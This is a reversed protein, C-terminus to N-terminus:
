SVVLEGRRGERRRGERGGKRGMCLGEDLGQFFSAARVEGQHHQRLPAEL